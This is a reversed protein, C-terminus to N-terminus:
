NHVKINGRLLDNPKDKGKNECVTSGEAELLKDLSELFEIEYQDPM